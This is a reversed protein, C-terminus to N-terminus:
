GKPRPWSRCPRTRCWRTATARSWWLGSRFCFLHWVSAFRSDFSLWVLTLRLLVLSLCLLVLTLRFPTATVRSCWLGVRFCFSLWAFAFRSEFSLLVLTLRFCFSVWVFAPRRPEPGGYAQTFAFRSDFPLLVLTLRFCFSLGIFAFRSLRFRTATARSWWLGSRFWFSLWAFAFRSDFSIDLNTKSPIKQFSGNSVHGVCPLNENSPGCPNPKQDSPESSKQYACV